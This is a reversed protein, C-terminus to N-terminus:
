ADVPVMVVRQQWVSDPGIVQGRLQRTIRSTRGLVRIATGALVAALPLEVAASLLAATQGSTHWALCVDFWADCALLTAAVMLGFMAVQRRQLVWWGTVALCVALAVDFGVWVINWARVSYTKPLSTSLYGIWPILAIAGVFTLVTV